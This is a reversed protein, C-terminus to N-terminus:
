VYFLYRMFNKSITMLGLFYLRISIKEEDFYIKRSICRKNIKTLMINKITIITETKKNFFIKYNNFCTLLCNKFLM